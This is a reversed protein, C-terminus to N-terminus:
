LDGYTRLPEVAADLLDEDVEPIAGLEMGKQLIDIQAQLADDDWQEPPTLEANVADRVAPIEEDSEIGLLEIVEPEEYIDDNELIYRIAEAFVIQIREVAEPNEDAWEGRATTAGNLMRQGTLDEWAESIGVLAEFEGAQQVRATLPPWAVAAAADGSSVSELGVVPSGAIANEFDEELSMGMEALLIDLGNHIGSSPGQSVVREGRLDEISEYPADPSTMLYGHMWYAPVLLRVDPELEEMVGPLSFIGMSGIDRQGLIVSRTAQASEMVEFELDIGHELDLDRLKVVTPILGSIGAQIGAYSVPIPEEDAPDDTEEETDGTDPPDPETAAEENGNCAALALMLAVLLAWPKMTRGVM